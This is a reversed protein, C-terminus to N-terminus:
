GCRFRRALRKTAFNILLVIIVLVAAIAFSVGLDEGRMAYQYLQVTLTAGSTELHEFVGAPTLKLMKVGIGATFILAASEGVIRGISLIIATIIGPMASPLLVTRIMHVRTAGIGLAAERYLPNVSKLAEQTTRIITPLVMISLTLGGALISYQLGMFVVFFMFGFLGYIISPIGALTETTFEIIKVFKSKGGYETLYIAAGIGIPTSILLTILVIYLTNIINPLIGITGTLESPATTLFSWSISPVGRVLIYALIGVTMLITVGASLWILGRLFLDMPRLKKYM